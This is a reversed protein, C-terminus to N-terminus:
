SINLEHGNEGRRCDDRCGAADLPRNVMLKKM